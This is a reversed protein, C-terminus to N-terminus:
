AFRVWSKNQVHKEEYNLLNIKDSTSIPLKGSIELTSLIQIALWELEFTFLRLDEDM